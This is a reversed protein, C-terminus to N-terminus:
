ENIMVLAENTMVLTETTTALAGTTRAVRRYYYPQSHLPSNQEFDNYKM